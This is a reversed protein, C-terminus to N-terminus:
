TREYGAPGELQMAAKEPRPEKDWKQTGTEASVEERVDTREFKETYCQGQRTGSAPTGQVTDDEHWCCGIEELIWLKGPDM